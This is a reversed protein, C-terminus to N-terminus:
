VEGWLLQRTKFMATAERCFCMRYIFSKSGYKKGKTRNVLYCITITYYLFPLVFFLGDKIKRWHYRKINQVVVCDMAKTNFIYHCALSEFHQRLSIKFFYHIYKHSREKKIFWQIDWFLAKKSLLIICFSFMFM